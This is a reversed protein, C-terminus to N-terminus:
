ALRPGLMRLCAFDITRLFIIHCLALSLDLVFLDLSILSKAGGWYGGKVDGGM